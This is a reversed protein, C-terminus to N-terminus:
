EDGESSEIVVVEMDGSSAMPEEQEDSSSTDQFLFPFRWSGSFFPNMVHVVEEQGFM